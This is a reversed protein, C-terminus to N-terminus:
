ILFPFNSLVICGQCHYIHHFYQHFCLIPLANFHIYEDVASPFPTSETLSLALVFEYGYPFDPLVVLPPCFM